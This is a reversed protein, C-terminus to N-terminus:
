VIIRKKLIWGCKSCQYMTFEKHDEYKLKLLGDCKRFKGTPYKEGDPNRKEEPKLNWCQPYGPKFGKEKGRSMYSSCYLCYELKKKTEILLFRNCFYCRMYCTCAPQYHYAITEKQRKKTKQNISEIIVKIKKWPKECVDCVGGQNGKTYIELEWSEILGQKYREKWIEISREISLLQQPTSKMLGAALFINKLRSDKLVEARDHSDFIEKEFISKSEM